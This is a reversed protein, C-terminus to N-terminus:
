LRKEMGTLWSLFIFLKFVPFIWAPWFKIIARLITSLPSSSVRWVFFRTFRDSLFALILRLDNDAVSRSLSPVLLYMTVFRSLRCLMAFFFLILTDFSMFNFLSDLLSFSTGPCIRIIRYRDFLDPTKASPLIIWNIKKVLFINNQYYAKNAQIRLSQSSLFCWLYLGKTTRRFAKKNCIFTILETLFICDKEPSSRSEPFLIANTGVM